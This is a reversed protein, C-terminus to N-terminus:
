EPLPVWGLGRGVQVLVLTPWILLGLLVFGARTASGVYAVGTLMLIVAVALYAFAGIALALRGTASPIWALLVFAALVALSPLGLHLFRLAAPYRPPELQYPLWLIAAALLVLLAAAVFRHERLRHWADAGTM